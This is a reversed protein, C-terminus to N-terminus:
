QVPTAPLKTSLGHIEHRVAAIADRLNRTADKQGEATREAHIALDYPLFCWSSLWACWDDWADRLRDILRRQGGMREGAVHRDSRGGDCLRLEGRGRGPGQCPRLRPYDALSSHLRAPVLHQRLRRRQPPPHGRLRRGVVLVRIRRAM